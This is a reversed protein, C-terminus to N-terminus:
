VVNMVCCLSCRKHMKEKQQKKKRHADLLRHILLCGKEFPGGNLITIDCKGLLDEFDDVQRELQEVPVLESTSPSRM